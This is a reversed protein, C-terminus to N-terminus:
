RKDITSIISKEEEVHPLVENNSVKHCESRSINLIKRWLWMECSELRQIDDRRLAWSKTGYVHLLTSWIVTKYCNQLYLARQIGTELSFPSGQRFLTDNM